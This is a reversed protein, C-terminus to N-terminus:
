SMATNGRPTDGSQHGQAAAAQIKVKVERYDGVVVRRTGDPSGIIATDAAEGPSVALQPDADFVVVLGAREADEFQVQAAM